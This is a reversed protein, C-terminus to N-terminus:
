DKAHCKNCYSRAYPGFFDAHRGYYAKEQQLVSYGYNIKNETASSDYSAANSSNAVTMFENLYFFRLINGFGSAHARHCTLCMVNNRTTASPNVNNYDNGPKDPNFNENNQALPKMALYDGTGLEFPALSSYTKNPDNNTMIGSSVYSNYNLVVAASLKAGNGAPHRFGAMGSTYSEQLMGPHCNACWESMNRGYAVHTVHPNEPRNYDAPAVVDPNANAFAFPGDLSKPQYGVGGLLRYAGVAFAGALPAPSSQYSGSDIIPLGTTAFTGDAFRRYKGHPDHCSSCALASAPYNGGPAFKLIEDSGYGFDVAVVNHGHTHGANGNAIFTGSITINMTKKLWAFDGGPTMQVPTTSDYPNIGGTSIHYDNPATDTAHHCNLCTSSQDDAKLLYPGSGQEFTRGTVMATGKLSNHMSHCGDCDAVGGSHFAFASRVTTLLLLIVALAIVRSKLLLGIEKYKDERSPM